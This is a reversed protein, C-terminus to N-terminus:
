PRATARPPDCGTGRTRSRGPLSTWATCRRSCARRRPSRWPRARLDVRHERDHRRAQVPRVRHIQADGERHELGPVLALAALLLDGLLQRGLQVAAQRSRQGEDLSQRREPLGQERLLDLVHDVAVGVLLQLALDVLDHRLQARIRADGTQVRVQLQVFRLEGDLDIAVLGGREADGHLRDAMGELRQEAAEVDRAVLVLALLVVHDHLHLVVLAPLRAIESGDIHSTLVAGQM